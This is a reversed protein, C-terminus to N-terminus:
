APTDIRIFEVTVASWACPCEEHIVSPNGFWLTVPEVDGQCPAQQAGDITVTRLGDSQHDFQVTHPETDAPLVLPAANRCCSNVTPREALGLRAAENRGGGGGHWESSRADVAAVGTAFGGISDFRYGFTLRYDTLGAFPDSTTVVYPFAPGGSALSIAGNAPTVTGGNEFTTWLDPDIGDDFGDCFSIRLGDVPQCDASALVTVTTGTTEEVVSTSRVPEGSEEMTPASEVPQELDLSSEVPQEAEGDAGGRTVVVTATVAILIM